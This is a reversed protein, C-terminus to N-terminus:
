RGAHWDRDHSRHADTLGNRFFRDYYEREVHHVQLWIGPAHIAECHAPFRGHTELIYDCIARV